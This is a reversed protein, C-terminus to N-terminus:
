KGNLIIRIKGREKGACQSEIFQDFAQKAEEVGMPKSFISAFDSATLEIKEFNVVNIGALRKLGGLDILHARSM